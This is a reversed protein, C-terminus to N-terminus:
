PCASGFQTADLPQTWAARPQPPRLCLTGTPAAAYPIGRFEAIEGERLDAVRGKNTDAMPKFQQDRGAALAPAALILAAALAALIPRRIRRGRSYTCAM